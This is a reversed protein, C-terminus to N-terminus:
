HTIICKITTQNNKFNFTDKLCYFKIKSEDGQCETYSLIVLSIIISCSGVLGLYLIVKYPSLYRYDMLIKANVRAYSLLCSLFVFALLVVIVFYENVMYEIIQYTNKDKLEENSNLPFFSSIILLPTNTIIIFLLSLKQHKFLNISFYKNMFLLIFVMDYTWLDYGSFKLLYMIQMIDAHIAYSFCVKLIEIVNSKAGRAKNYILPKLKLSKHSDEQKIEKKQSNGLHSIYLFLAGGFIFSIYRYLSKILTHQSLYPIIGFLSLKANTDISNFSFLSEKLSKFIVTGLIYIYYKSCKGIGIFSGM